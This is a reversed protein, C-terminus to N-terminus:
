LRKLYGLTIRGPAINCHFGEPEQMSYSAAPKSTIADFINYFYVAAFGAFCVATINYWNKYKDYADQMAWPDDAPADLYEEHANARVMSSLVAAGLTVGGLLMLRTGKGGQGKYMQGWGPILCSRWTAQFTSIEKKAVPPQVPPVPKEPPEVVIEAKAEEFVKIIKPSVTAPDLELNPDLTLAKKFQQKAKENEGFAVYSFALYKYAEVQDSQTLQKLFQLADELEQIAHEYEGNNYYMKAQELMRVLSDAPVEQAICISVAVCLLALIVNRFM